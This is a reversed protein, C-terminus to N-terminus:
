REVGRALWDRVAAPGPFHEGVWLGMGGLRRAAQMGDEDTVDDGVFVPRRGAFPPHTMLLDVPLAKTATSPRLEWAMHASLLVFDPKSAACRELLARCAPGHEPALRFHLVVGHPKREVVVGPWGATAEALL